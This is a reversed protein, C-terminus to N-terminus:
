NRWWMLKKLVPSWYLDVRDCDGGSLRLGKVDEKLSVLDLAGHHEPQADKLAEAELKAPLACIGKQVGPDIAFEESFVSSPTSLPGVIIAVHVKQDSTGLVAFNSPKGNVFNSRILTLSDWKVEPRARQLLTMINSRQKTSITPQTAFLCAHVLLLVLAITKMKRM